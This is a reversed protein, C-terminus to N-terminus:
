CLVNVFVTANIIVVHSITSITPLSIATILRRISDAMLLMSLGSLPVPDWGSRGLINSFLSPSIYCMLGATRDTPTLHTYSMPHPVHWRNSQLFEEPRNGSCLIREGRNRLSLEETEQGQERKNM